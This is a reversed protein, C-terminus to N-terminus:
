FVMWDPKAAPKQTEKPAPRRASARPTVAPPREVPAARTVRALEDRAAAAESRAIQEDARAKAAAATLEGREVRVLHLQDLADRLRGKGEGYGVVFMGVAVVALLPYTMPNNWCAWFSRWISQAARGVLRVASVAVGPWAPRWSLMSNLNM